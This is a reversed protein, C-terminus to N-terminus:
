FFPKKRLMFNRFIIPDCGRLLVSFAETLCWNFDDISVGQATTFSNIKRKIIIKVIKWFHSFDKRCCKEVYITRNIKIFLLVTEKAV